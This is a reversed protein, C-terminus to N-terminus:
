EDDGLDRDDMTGRDVSTREREDAVIQNRLPPLEDIRDVLMSGLHPRLERVLPPLSGRFERPVWRDRGGRDRTGHHFFQRPFHREFVDLRDDLSEAFGRPPSLLGTEVPDLEVSRVAVQDAIEDRRARIAAGVFVAAGQHSAQLKRQLDELPDLLLAAVIKRDSDPQGRRLHRVAPESGLLDLDDRGNQGTRAEVRDAQRARIVSRKAPEDGRGARGNPQERGIGFPDLFNGRNRDHDSVPDLIRDDRFVDQGRPLRVDNAHTARQDGVRIQRVLGCGAAEVVDDRADCAILPAESPEHDLPQRNTAEHIGCRTFFARHREHRRLTGLLDEDGAASDGTELGSPDGRESPVLHGKVFFRVPEAALEVQGGNRGRLLLKGLRDVIERRLGLFGGDRDLEPFFDGGLDHFGQPGVDDDDRGAADRRRRAADGADVLRDHDGSAVDQGAFHHDAVFHDDDPAALDAAFGGVVDAFPSHLRDGNELHEPADGRIEDRPGSLEQHLPEVFVAHLEHGPRRDVFHEVVSDDECPVSLLFGNAVHVHHNEGHARLRHIAQRGLQLVAHRLNM